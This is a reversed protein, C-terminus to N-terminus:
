VPAFKQHEEMKVTRDEITAEMGASREHKEVEWPGVPDKLKSMEVILMEWGPRKVGYSKRRQTRSVSGNWWDSFKILTDGM